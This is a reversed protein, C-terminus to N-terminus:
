LTGDRSAPKGTGTTKRKKRKEDGPPVHCIVCCADHLYLVPVGVAYVVLELREGQAGKRGEQVEAGAVEAQASVPLPPCVPAVDDEVLGHLM